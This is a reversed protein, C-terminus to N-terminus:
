YATRLVIIAIGIGRVCEDCKEEKRDEANREKSQLEADISAKKKLLSFIHANKKKNSKKYKMGFFDNVPASLSNLQPQTVDDSITIVRSSFQIARLLHIALSFSCFLAYSQLKKKM